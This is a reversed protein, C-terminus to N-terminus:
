NPAATLRSPAMLKMSQPFATSVWPTLPVQEIQYEYCREGNTDVAIADLPVEPDLDYDRVIVRVGPPCRSICVTGNRLMVEVEPMARRM